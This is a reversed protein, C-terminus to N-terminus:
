EKSIFHLDAQPFQAFIDRWSKGRLYRVQGDDDSVCYLNSPIGWYAGGPDYGDEDIPVERITLMGVSDTPLDSRRGMSAGYKSYGKTEYDQM